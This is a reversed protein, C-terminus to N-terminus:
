DPAASLLPDSAEPAARRYAFSLTWAMTASYVLGATAILFAGPEAIGLHGGLLGAALTLVGANLGWFVLARGSVVVLEDARLWPWGLASRARVVFGAFVQYSMAVIFNSAWGLLGLVGYACALRAGAPSAVGTVALCIGAAAALMLCFLGALAHRTTWGPPVGRSRLLSQFIVVYAALVAALAVTWLTVNGIGALLALFLAVTVAGLAFLQVLASNPVPANDSSAIAAMGRYSLACIALAVWGLAALHAHASLDRLVTGPMFGRGKDFALVAGLCSACLLFFLAMLLGSEAAGRRLGPTMSPVVNIAFLIVSFAVVAGAMWVGDWSGLMFHAVVGSAGLFYLVLQVKAVRPFRLRGGAPADRCIAGLLASTIWGLTFTHVWSLVPLQYFYDALKITAWPATATGLAFSFIAIVFFYIPLRVFDGSAPRGGGAAPGRDSQLRAMIRNM